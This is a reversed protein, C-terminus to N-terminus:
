ETVRQFRPCIRYVGPWEGAETGSFLTASEGPYVAKAQGPSYVGM